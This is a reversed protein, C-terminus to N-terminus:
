SIYKLPIGFSFFGKEEISVSKKVFFKLIKQFIGCRLQPIKKRKHIIKKVESSLVPPL